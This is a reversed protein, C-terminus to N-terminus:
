KVFEKYAEGIITVGYEVVYEKHLWKYAYRVADLLDDTVYRDEPPDVIWDPRRTAAAEAEKITAFVKGENATDGDITWGEQSGTYSYGEM